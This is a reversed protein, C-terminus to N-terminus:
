ARPNESASEYAAALDAFSVINGGVSKCYWELYTRTRELMSEVGQVDAGYVNAGKTLSTSHLTYSWVPTKDSILRRSLAKLTRLDSGEPSLRVPETFKRLRGQPSFGPSSFNQTLFYSTHRITRAGCVPTVLIAGAPTDAIFPQNSQSSFDPGGGHSFDFSVGPSFDYVIGAEALIPYIDASAGYRGARHATPARGFANEYADVLATMMGRQVAAPHRHQFSYHESEYHSGPPTVWSHLHVGCHAAGREVLTKFYQATEADKLLPYSLFYLPAAGYEECVAQFRAIDSTPAIAHRRGSMDSWDFIEETDVTLILKPRTASAFAIPKTTVSRTRASKEKLAGFIEHMGGTTEDWSHAEAYARTAERDPPAALLDKVAAAIAEPTRSAALGGAAPAAVVERNGWVDTAICPVGCAMAELLVNPWGERSSALVLADVANLIEPLREHAIAGLFRVRGAVGLDHARKELSRRMEGEGVILLTAEKIDSLADIVLHHGKREILHGISALVPGKVNLASRCADRDLPKFLELNVGNRLTRLKEPPAGLDILKERLAEAVCIVADAAMVASMIARRPGEYDPIQSVDSGRATLVLPLNFEKAVAAAAVGDPYLYHADIFDPRWGTEILAALSRRFAKALAGPAWEMGIKPAVVYRPHDIDLGHRVESKPARAYRAYQGFAGHAFPFWPVPAIVKTEARYKELYARLRNEVFVGHAPAAANPYLTSFLVFRM